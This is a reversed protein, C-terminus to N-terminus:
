GRVPKEAWERGAGSADVVRGLQEAVRV